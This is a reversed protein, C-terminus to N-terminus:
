VVQMPDMYERIGAVKDGRIRFLFHYSNRYPSGDHWNGEAEVEIAVRDAEATTGIVKYQMGNPLAKYMNTMMRVTREYNKLGAVKIRAPDGIVWWSADDTLMSTAAEMEMGFALQLFRLAVQRNAEILDTMNLKWFETFQEAV